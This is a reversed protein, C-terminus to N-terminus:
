GHVALCAADLHVVIGAADLAVDQGGEYVTMDLNAADLLGVEVDELLRLHGGDKHLTTKEGVIVIPPPEAHGVPPPDHALHDGAADAGIPPVDAAPDGAALYM